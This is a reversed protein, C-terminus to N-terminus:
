PCFVVLVGTSFVAGQAIFGVLCGCFYMKLEEHTLAGLVDRKHYDFLCKCLFFYFLLLWDDLTKFIRIKAENSLHIGSLLGDLEFSLVFTYGWSGLYFFSVIQYALIYFHKDYYRRCAYFYVLVSFAALLAQFITTSNTFIFNEFEQWDQPPKNCAIAASLVATIRNLLQLLRCVEM